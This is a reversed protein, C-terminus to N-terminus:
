GGVLLVEGIDSPKCEADNMAKKCPEITRRILQSVLYEFKARTLKLDMHKPGTQDVTLYPLNIATQLM